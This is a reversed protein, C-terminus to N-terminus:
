WRGEGQGTTLIGVIVIRAIRTWLIRSVIRARPSSLPPPEEEEFDRFLERCFVRVVYRAAQRDTFRSFGM